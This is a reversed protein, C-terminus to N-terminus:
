IYFEEKSKMRNIFTDQNISYNVLLAQLGNPFLTVKHYGTAYEEPFTLTNDDSVTTNMAKAYDHLLAVYNSHNYGFYFMMLLISNAAIAQECTQLKKFIENFIACHIAGQM